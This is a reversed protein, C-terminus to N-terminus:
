SLFGANVAMDWFGSPFIGMLLVGTAALFVAAIIAPSPSSLPVAEDSEKFYMYVIVRLYFYLSIVSNIVGIVALWIFGSKIAATFIYFKGMFGVTPPIGAMSFMFVAMVLGILPYKFGIGAYDSLRTCEEGQKQLLRYFESLM